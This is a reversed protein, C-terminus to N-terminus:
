NDRLMVLDDTTIKGSKKLKEEVTKAREEREEEKKHEQVQRRESFDSDLKIELARLESLQKKLEKFAKLFENKKVIFLEWSSEQQKKLKQLDKSLKRYDNTADKGTALKETFKQHAVNAHEKLQELSKALERIETSVEASRSHEEYVKKLKKIKELVKQEQTYEYAEIEISEELRDIDSKIRGISIKKGGSAVVDKRLDKIKSIIERVKANYQDREKRLESLSKEETNGRLSRVKDILEKLQVKLAEKDHFAKEKEVKLSNVLNRSTAIQSKLDRISERLKNKEEDSLM